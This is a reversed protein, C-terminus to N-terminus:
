IKKTKHKRNKRMRTTQKMPSNTSKYVMGTRRPNKKRTVNRRKMSYNNRNNRRKGGGGQQPAVSFSAMVAYHDSPMVEVGNNEYKPQNKNTNEAASLLVTHTISKPETTSAIAFSVTDGEFAFNTGEIFGEKYDKNIKMFTDNNIGGLTNPIPDTPELVSDANACCTNGFNPFEFMANFQQNGITFNIGKQNLKNLLLRGPDNFDGGMYVCVSKILNLQETNQKEFAKTVFNGIGNRLSELIEDSTDKNKPYVILFEAIQKNIVEIEANIAVIEANISVIDADVIDPKQLKLESLKKRDNLITKRGVDYNIQTNLGPYAKKPIARLQPMNLNHIAIFIHLVGDKKLCSTLMIPRGMDPVLPGDGKKVIFGDPTEDNLLKVNNDEIIQGLDDSYFFVKDTDNGIPTTYKDVLKQVIPLKQRNWKLMNTLPFKTNDTVIAIGEAVGAAATNVVNDYIINFQENASVVDNASTSCCDLLLPSTKNANIKTIRRLIGYQENKNTSTGEDLNYKKLNHHSKDKEEPAFGYYAMNTNNVHISQEILMYVSPKNADNLQTNINRSICDALQLRFNGLTNHIKINDDSLKDNGLVTEGEVNPLSKDFNVLSDYVIYETIDSGEVIKKAKGIIAASDSLGPHLLSHHLDLPYSTNYSAIVIQEDAQETM